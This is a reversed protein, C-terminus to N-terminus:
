GRHTHKEGAAHHQGLGFRSGRLAQGLRVLESTPLELVSMGPAKDSYLHGGYSARDFSVALCADNSLNGHVLAQTLCLRSQDQPSVPGVPLLAALAVLLLLLLEYRPRRWPLRTVARM